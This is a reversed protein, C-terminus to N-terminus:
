WKHYSHHRHASSADHDNPKMYPPHGKDRWHNASLNKIWLGTGQPPKTDLLREQRDRAASRGFRSLAQTITIAVCMCIAMLLAKLAWSDSLAWLYGCAAGAIIIILNLFKIM